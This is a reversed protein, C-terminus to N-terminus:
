PILFIDDGQHMLWSLTLQGVTCGKRDAVEKFKDVLVLNKNFNEPLFRPLSRRADTADFDDLSRYKGGMMARGLPSYCVVAVGLERCTKLFDGEVELAFPSYEMQVASIRHVKCARRLTKASVESLGLYDIKGQEKLQKM